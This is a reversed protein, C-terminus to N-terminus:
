EFVSTHAPDKPDDGFRNPGPTGPLFMIILYAISVLAGALPVNSLVVFALYWWGSLNRDHLRRVNVAISPIFTGLFFLAMVGAGLYFLVGPGAPIGEDELTAFDLGGAFMLAICLAYIIVAFLAFMWYEMRRSRGSFDAYRKLPLFMWHM